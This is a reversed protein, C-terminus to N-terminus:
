QYKCKSCSMLLNMDYNVAYLTPQNDEPKCLTIVSTPSSKELDLWELQETLKLWDDTWIMPLWDYSITHNWNKKNRQKNINTHIM